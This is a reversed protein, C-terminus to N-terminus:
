WMYLFYIIGKREVPFPSVRDEGLRRKQNPMWLKKYYSNEQGTIMRVAKDPSDWSAGTRGPISSVASYRLGPCSPSSPNRQTNVECAVSRRVLHEKDRFWLVPWDSGALRYIEGAQRCFSQRVMKVCSIMKVKTCFRGADIPFKMWCRLYNRNGFAPLQNVDTAGTSPSSRPSGAPGPSGPATCEGVCRSVTRTLQQLDTYHCRM